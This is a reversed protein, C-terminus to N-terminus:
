DVKKEYEKMVEGLAKWIGGHWGMVDKWKRDHEGWAAKLWLLYGGVVVDPWSVREGLLFPGKGGNKSYWVAMGAFGEEVKKWEEKGEDSELSPVVDELKKGFLKERTTRFYEQSAPNLIDHVAPIVFQWVTALKADLAEEFDISLGM